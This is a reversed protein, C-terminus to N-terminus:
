LKLDMKLCIFHIQRKEQKVQNSDIATQKKIHKNGEENDTTGKDTSIKPSNLIFISEKLFILRNVAQTM